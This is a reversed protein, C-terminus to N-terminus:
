YCWSNSISNGIDRKDNGINTHHRFYAPSKTIQASCAIGSFPIKNNLLFPKSKNMENTDFAQGFSHLSWDCFTAWGGTMITLLNWCFESTIQFVNTFIGNICGPGKWVVIQVNSVERFKRLKRDICNLIYNLIFV